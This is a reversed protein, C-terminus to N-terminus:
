PGTWSSSRATSACSRATSPAPSIAARRTRSSTRRARTSFADDPTVRRPVGQDRRDDGAARQPEPLPRDGRAARLQERPLSAAVYRGVAEPAIPDDSCQLVLCPRAVAALDDRNDSLFTVRAFQRAIEPDSRCFSNTLEEGLEPRDDNGMIVPAMASSWGLYNRGDVDLLGDIDAEHLRRPLRRRRRLAALPRDARAHRLPRARRRRRPHRDDRQGFPRRLRRRASRAGASRCSTTPTAACRPTASAISRRPTRAAPASTTSCSSGFDDEFAPWVHRWMSQDCGFGHAFMM